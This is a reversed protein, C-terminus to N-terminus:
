DDKPILIVTGEDTVIDLTGSDPDQAFSTPDEFDVLLFSMEDGDQFLAIGEDNRLVGVYGTLANPRGDSIIYIPLETM